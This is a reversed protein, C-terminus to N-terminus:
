EVDLEGTVLGVLGEGGEDTVISGVRAEVDLEAKGLPMNGVGADGAAVGAVSEGVAGVCLVDRASVGQGGSVVFDVAECGVGGGVQLGHGPGRNYVELPGGGGILTGANLSVQEVLVASVDRARRAGSVEKPPSVALM